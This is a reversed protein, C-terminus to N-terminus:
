LLSSGNDVSVTASLVSSKKKSTESSTASCSKRRTQRLQAGRGTDLKPTLVGKGSLETGSDLLYNIARKKIVKAANQDANDVNGCQTCIFLAQSKRNDAQTHGCNACEQSTKYPNIKFVPKLARKAKYKLFVEFKYLGQALLAKNLGAKARAKNKLWKGTAKDQKPKPKKTMNQLKLDELIFVGHKPNSVLSCTM